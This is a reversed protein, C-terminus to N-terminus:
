MPWGWTHWVRSFAKPMEVPPLGIRPDHDERKECVNLGGEVLTPTAVGDRGLIVVSWSQIKRGREAEFCDWCGV